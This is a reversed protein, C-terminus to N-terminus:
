LYEKHTIPKETQKPHCKPCPDMKHSLTKYVTSCKPCRLEIVMGKDAHVNTKPKM